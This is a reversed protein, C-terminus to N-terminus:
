ARSAAGAPTADRRIANALLPAVSVVERAFAGGARAPVTDTAVLAAIRAGELVGVASGALLAHTAVVTIPDRAGRARLAEAAAAITGGTAIMDDVVLPTKGAVEGVVEHVAVERGSRRTKHVVAVPLGLRRAYERALKAGGLDPSVVVADRGIRKRAVDALLPVASLHELPTEFFGEVAPAHLEVAFFRAFRGRELLDAVVRAGLPEGARVRREQRAYGSYPLVAGVRLAGARRLADAILVLELVHEGVPALTPQVVYAARGRVDTLLEVHIEGDPFREVATPALEVGAWSAVARALDPHASGSVLVPDRVAALEGEGVMSPRARPATMRRGGPGALAGPPRLVLAGGVARRARAHGAGRVPADGRPRGRAAERREDRRPGAPEARPGGRGSRGRPPADARARARARRRGPGPPRRALRRRARGRAAGFLGIALSRLEPRAHAWDTARVLREALLGIDFRLHATRADVREEDATLLDFLLTGVGARVLEGAVYRNRSSKRSSGSGHAFIVLGRADPPVSLHGELEADDIPIVIDREVAAPVRESRRHGAHPRAPEGQESRARELIAVVDDDTTEGFEEYWLGVAMFDDEPRPCVVEDAITALEDLTDSAGVPVALVVRAAGRQRTTLIAARATGGTAVGDDVLLVTKGEVSVPPAGGRFREVRADVEARKVAVLEELEEESVGVLRMRARDVYLAGDEAVAGIGLEPQIPAGIKRVVCVDLPAGLARAVEYATVVGGRPLGLVVVDKGRYAALERGLLRGGDARDEFLSNRMM